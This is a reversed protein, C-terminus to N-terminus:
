QTTSKMQSNYFAYAEQFNKLDLDHKIPTGTVAKYNVTVTPKSGFAKVWADSFDVEAICGKAGCTKYQMKIPEAGAFVVSIGDSLAVGTPTRIVAQTPTASDKNKPVVAWSFVIQKTKKNVLSYTLACRKSKNDIEACDVRWNNFSKQIRTTSAAQAGHSALVLAMFGFPVVLHKM